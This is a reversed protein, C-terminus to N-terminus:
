DKELDDAALEVDIVEREGITLTQSQLGIFSFQLEKYNNPVELKYEGSIDSVTGLRAGKIVINVGPLPRGDEASFIKGSITKTLGLSSELEADNGTSEECSFTFLLFALLPLTTAFKLFSLRSPTKKYIMNIRKKIPLQNFPNLLSIDLQKFLTKILVKEYAIASSNKVVERDCVFEHQARLANHILYIFPNFWYIIKALELMLVDISHRDNIHKLEHALVSKLEEPTWIDTQKVFIYNFFSSVPQDNNLYVLYYGGQQTVDNQRITKIIKALSLVFRLGAIIVGIVYTWMLIAMIDLGSQNSSTTITNIIEKESGEFIYSPSSSIYTFHLLPIIVSLILVSVLYVRKANFHQDQHLILVYLLYFLALCISSEFLYSIM